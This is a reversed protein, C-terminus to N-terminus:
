YGRVERQVFECIDDFVPDLAPNIYDIGEIYSGNRTAHGNQILIAVCVGNPANDNIFKITAGENDTVIEYRWARATAGTDIPTNRALEYVGREAFPKLKHAISLRSLYGLRDKTNKFHTTIRFELPM